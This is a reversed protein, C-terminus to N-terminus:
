SVSISDPSNLSVAVHASFLLATTGLSRYVKLGARAYQSTPPLRTQMRGSPTIPPVVVVHPQFSVCPLAFCLSPPSFCRFRPRLVTSPQHLPVCAGILARRKSHAPRISIRESYSSTCPQFAELWRARLSLMFRPTLRQVAPTHAQENAPLRSARSPVRDFAQLSKSSALGSAWHCPPMTQIPKARLFRPTGAHSLAFCGRLPSSPV